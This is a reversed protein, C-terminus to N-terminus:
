RGDSKVEKDSNGDKFRTVETAKACVEGDSMRLKIGDGVSVDRAATIVKKGDSSYVAGYGRTLVALPSLANLKGSLTMFKERKEGIIFRSVSELRDTVTDLDRRREDIFGYPSSIVRKKETESIKEKLIELKRLVTGSIEGNLATLRGRLETIDPVAIEAAGSPTPARVSCVFDCITFDTEHGVASIFPIDSAAIARALAENNFAWLDEISGGGRGIIAVDPRVTETFCKVGNILSRAAGEGQVLAPYVLIKALPYRRGTINIIDRVAAGTSSTIVGVTKPFKPLAKKYRDSFLGEDELKKKLKEYAEYLAGKGDPLMETVYLQYNGDREYVSLRGNVVVKMGSEPLFKMRRADRAFMVAKIVSSEDKLSFYFHGSQVHHKFNSIEGRVRLTRFVPIAELVEKVYGNLETVGIINENFYETM